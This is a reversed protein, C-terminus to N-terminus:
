HASTPLHKTGFGKHASKGEPLGPDKSFDRLHTPVDWPPRISNVAPYLGPSPTGALGAGCPLWIIHLDGLALPIQASSSGPLDLKGGNVLETSLAHAKILPTLLTKLLNLVFFLELVRFSFIGGSARIAMM